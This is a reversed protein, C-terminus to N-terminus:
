VSVSTRERNKLEKKITKIDDPQKGLKEAFQIIDETSLLPLAEAAHTSSYKFYESIVEVAKSAGASKKSKAKNWAYRQSRGSTSVTMLDVLLEKHTNMNFVFPNVLENLFLIQRADRTGSLWRMVVLPALAKQEDETLSRYYERDKTSLKNLVQFIDLKHKKDSM